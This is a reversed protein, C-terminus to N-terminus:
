FEGLQPKFSWEFFLTFCLCLLASGLPASSLWASGLQASGLRVSGLPASGLQALSLPASGLHALSLQASGLRASSLRALLDFIPKFIFITNTFTDKLKLNLAHIM